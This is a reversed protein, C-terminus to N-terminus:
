LGCLGRVQERLPGRAPPAADASGGTRDALGAMDGTLDGIEGVLHRTQGTSDAIEPAPLDSRAAFATLTRGARQRVKQV